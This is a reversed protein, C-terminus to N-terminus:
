IIGNREGMEYDTKNYELYASTDVVPTPQTIYLFRVTQRHTKSKFKRIESISIPKIQKKRM